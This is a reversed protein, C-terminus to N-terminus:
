FPKTYVAWIAAVVLVAAPVTLARATKPNRFAMGSLASLGLWAVLKIAIWGSAMKLGLKSVLGFGAVVILLSLIGGLMMTRKRRKPDPAAFAQFTIAILFVVCSVHIISYFTPSM